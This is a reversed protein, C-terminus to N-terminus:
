GEHMDLRPAGADEKVLSTLGTLMWLDEKKSCSFLSMPTELIGGGTDM